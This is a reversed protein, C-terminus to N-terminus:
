IGKLRCVEATLAKITATSKNLQRTNIAMGLSLGLGFAILLWIAIM